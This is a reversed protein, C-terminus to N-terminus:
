VLIKKEGTVMDIGTRELLCLGTVLVDVVVAVLHDASKFETVVEGELVPQGHAILIYNQLWVLQKVRIIGPVVAHKANEELLLDAVLPKDVQDLTIDAGEHLQHLNHVRNRLFLHVM